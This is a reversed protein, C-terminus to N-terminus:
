EKLGNYLETNKNQKQHRLRICYFKPAICVFSNSLDNKFIEGNRITNTAMEDKLEEKRLTIPGQALPYVDDISEPVVNVDRKRRDECIRVCKSEPDSHNCVRIHCHVFVFPHEGIFKFSELSFRESRENAPHYELTEDVKCSNHTFFLFPTLCYNNDYFHIFSSILNSVFCFLFFFQVWNSQFNEKTM